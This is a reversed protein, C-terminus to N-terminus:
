KKKQFISKWSFSTLNLEKWVESYHTKLEADNSLSVWTGLHGCIEWDQSRDQKSLFIKLESKKLPGHIEYRGCRILFLKEM